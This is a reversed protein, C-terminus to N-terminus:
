ERAFARRVRAVDEGIARVLTTDDPFSETERIKEVLEVRITEGYFDDEFDLLHAELINREPDAFAAAPYLAGRLLVRAAYVGSLGPDGCAINATRYGLERGRGKGRM